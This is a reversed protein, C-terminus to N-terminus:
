GAKPHGMGMTSSSSMGSWVAVGLVILGLIVSNWTVGMTLGVIFMPSVLLWAGLIGNVWSVFKTSEVSYLEVLSSLAVLVGVIFLNSIFGADMFYGVLALWLGAILSITGAIKSKDTKM